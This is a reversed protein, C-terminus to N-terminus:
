RLAELQLIANGVEDTLWDYKEGLVRCEGKPEGSEEVSALCADREVCMTRLEGMLTILYDPLNTHVDEPSNLAHYSFAPNSNTSTADPDDDTVVEYRGGEASITFRSCRDAAHAPDDPARADNDRAHPMIREASRPAAAQDGGATFALMLSLTGIKVGRRM